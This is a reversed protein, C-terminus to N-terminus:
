QQEQHLHVAVQMRCEGVIEHEAGVLMDDVVEVVVDGRAIGCRRRRRPRSLLRSARDRECRLRCTVSTQYRRSRRHFIELREFGDHGDRPAAGWLAANCVRFREAYPALDRAEIADQLVSRDARFSPYEHEPAPM